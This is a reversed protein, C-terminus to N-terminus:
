RTSPSITISFHEPAIPFIYKEMPKPGCSAGGLGLQRLDLNLCIERRPELAGFRRTQGNRHRAFMLDECDYHLAQVFMPFDGSFKVGRGGSDSLEVWRVDCRYGNDQPRVYTEYLDTVTSEYLGVFSGTCRDIYNESPGRGYWRVRELSSDLLWSLGLRPLAAPMHGYPALDSTLTITGDTRFIWVATWEFGASKSGTVDVNSVVRVDGGELAEVAIGKAQCCLRTLGSAAFPPTGWGDQLWCDNDVFARLCTPRPGTVAQLDTPLIQKGALELSCLTGSKRCFVAKFAASSVSVSKGDEQVSVSMGKEVNAAAAAVVPNSWAMQDRSFVFGAPAWPTDERLSFEVNYFYEKGAKLTVGPDPLSVEMKERPGVSPVMWVGGGIEVGDEYFHWSADFLSADTFEFRNWLEAKLTSADSSSVVLPRYVHSLEILKATVKHDPRIVGNCCFPGDNPIEDWDGGYALITVPSGDPNFRTTNKLLTQDVWDWICGGSLSEHNYIVDWYEQLNGIANGMAHGYECIFLPKGSTQHNPQDKDPVGPASEGLVGRSELWEVAPYMVSDMDADPNGREWHVPRTPDLARVAERANVFCQGHGTENGLSWITVSPHNRYCLVNNENREVISKNWEEHRGLGEEGYRMGHGEVNAEAVVYLGYKDCLDYWYHHDPYHCTRVTNINNRKMMLVDELMEERSVTRGNEASHEHRNVGKFKVPRGNVLITHGKIEVKKLGVQATRVDEGAKIVLTYLYPDEASWLHPRRVTLSSEAGKFAGVKRGSADYLTASVGRAASKVSLRIKASKFDDPFEAWWYFDEIPNQPVSLLTVDRFIGSFRFMDQDELYSGDCWRYVEVALLNEGGVLLDTVDFECPLKSDEAYGAKQGNVWVYCASYVGDFRLITRRHAWTEPVTFVTRYSSVPNYDASRYSFDRILPPQAAHPYTINTYQPSGFGSLEVCGPVGITQWRSDDFDTKWFDLPRRAPDGCWSIKWEGNLSKVYSDAPPTYAHSPLCGVRNVQPNEWDPTTQSQAAVDLCAALLLLSITVYRRM